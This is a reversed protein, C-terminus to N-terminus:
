KLKNKIEKAKTLESKLLALREETDKVGKEALVEARHIKFELEEIIDDIPLNEDPLSNKKEQIGTVVKVIAVIAIVFLVLM